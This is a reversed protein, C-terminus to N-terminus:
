EQISIQIRRQDPRNAFVDLMEFPLKSSAQTSGKSSNEIMANLDQEIWKKPVPGILATEVTGDAEVLALHPIADVGFAEILPWNNPNDGNVMVFNVKGDYEEEIVELTAAMQKCNECWPAWFDVVTPKESKGIVTLPASHQEMTYLLQIPTIPHTWQWAYNLVALSISAVAVIINNRRRRATPEPATATAAAAKFLPNDAPKNTSRQKFSVVDGFQAGADTTSPQTQQLSVAEPPADKITSEESFLPSSSSEGNDSNKAQFSSGSRTHAIQHPSQVHLFARSIAM